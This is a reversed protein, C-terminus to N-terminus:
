HKQPSSYVFISHLADIAERITRPAKIGFALDKNKKNILFAM